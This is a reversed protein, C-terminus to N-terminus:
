TGGRPGGRGRMQLTSVDFAAGKLAALKAKQDATLIEMAKATMRERMGGAAGGGQGEDRMQQMADRFKARQEDTIGLQRAIDEDMLVGGGLAQVRIEALRAAQKADLISALKADAETMRARREERWKQREEESMDRPDAGGGAAGGGPGAPLAADIKAKQEATIGLEKQVSEQRVLMARSVFGGMGAGRTGAAPQARAPSAFPAVLCTLGLAAAFAFRNM